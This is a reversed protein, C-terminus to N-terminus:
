SSGSKKVWKMAETVTTKIDARVEQDLQKRQKQTIDMKEIQTQYNEYVKNEMWEPGYETTTSKEWVVVQTAVEKMQQPSLRKRPKSTFDIKEIEKIAEVTEKSEETEPVLRYINTSEPGPVPMEPHMCAGPIGPVSVVTNPPIPYSIFVDEEVERPVSAIMLPQAAFVFYDGGLPTISIQHQYEIIAPRIEEPAILPVCRRGGDRQSGTWARLARLLVRSNQEILDETVLRARRDADTMKEPDMKDQLEKLQRLGQDREWREVILKRLQEIREKHPKGDPAYYATCGDTLPGVPITKPLADTPKKKRPLGYFRPSDCCRGWFAYEDVKVGGDSSVRGRAFAHWEEVQESDQCEKTGTLRLTLREGKQSVILLEQGGGSLKRTKAFHRSEPEEETAEKIKNYLPKITAPIEDELAREAAEGVSDANAAMLVANILRVAKGAASGGLLGLLEGATELGELTAGAVLSTGWETHLWTILNNAARMGPQCRGMEMKRRGEVSAVAREGAEKAMDYAAKRLLTDSLDDAWVPACFLAVMLVSLIKKM